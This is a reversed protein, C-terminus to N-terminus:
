TFVGYTHGLANFAAIESAINDAKMIASGAVLRDVGAALLEPATALSVGGDVQITMEPHRVAFAHIKRLVRRDFPQGQAGIRAIGMFQVYDIEGIVPELIATDTDINLALGLALAGPTFGAAHGFRRKFDAIIGGLSTTSEVHVTIRSAGLEVWTAIAESPAEVMLDLDYRFRDTLPLWAAEKEAYPWSAPKAFRGDVIDIQVSEVSEIAALRALAKDLEARSKPLIAPVVISM